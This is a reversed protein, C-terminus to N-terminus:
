TELRPPSVVTIVVVVVVVVRGRLTHAPVPLGAHCAWLLLGLVRSHCVGLRCAPESESRSRPVSSVVSPTYQALPHPSSNILPHSPQHSPHTLSHSLSLSYPYSHTLVVVLSHTLSGHRSDHAYLEVVVLVPQHISLTLISYSCSSWRCYVLMVRSRTVSAAGDILGM